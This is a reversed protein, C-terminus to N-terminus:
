LRLPWEGVKFTPVKSSGATNMSEMSSSAILLHPIQVDWTM